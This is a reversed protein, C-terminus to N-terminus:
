REAAWRTATHKNGSSVDLPGGGECIITLASIGGGGVGDAMERGPDEFRKAVAALGLGKVAGFTRGGDEVALRLAAASRLLRWAFLLLLCRCCFGGAGAADAAETPALRRWVAGVRRPGWSETREYM